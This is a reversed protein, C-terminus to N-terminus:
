KRYKKGCYWPCKKFHANNHHINQWGVPLRKSYYKERKLTEWVVHNELESKEWTVRRFTNNQFLYLISSRFKDEVTFLASQCYLLIKVEYFVSSGKNGRQLIESKSEIINVELFFKLYFLWIYKWMRFPLKIMGSNQLKISSM